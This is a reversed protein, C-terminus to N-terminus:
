KRCIPILALKSSETHAECLNYRLTYHVLCYACVTYCDVASSSDAYVLIGIWKNPNSKWQIWLQPLFGQFGNWIQEKELKTRVKEKKGQTCVIIYYQKVTARMGM